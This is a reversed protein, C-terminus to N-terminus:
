LSQESRTETDHKLLEQLIEVEMFHVVWMLIRAQSIGYVSFGPPSCDMPPTVLTPCSLTVLGGGAAFLNRCGLPESSLTENGIFCEKFRGPNPLHGQLPFHCGVGTTKGPFTWPCLLKAPYLGHPRLSNSM